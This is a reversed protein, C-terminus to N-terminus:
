RVVKKSNNWVYEMSQKKFREVPLFVAIFMDPVPIEAMRSKVHGYLYQKIAPAIEPFKSANNLM